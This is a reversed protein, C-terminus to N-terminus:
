RLERWQKLSISCMYRGIKDEYWDFKDISFTDNIYYSKDERAIVLVIPRKYLREADLFQVYEDPNIDKVKAFNYNKNKPTLWFDFEVVALGVAGILNYTGDSYTEFEENKSSRQITPLKSLPIPLQLIKTRDKNAFYINYNM